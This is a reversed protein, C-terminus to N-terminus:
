SLERKIRGEQKKQKELLEIKSILKWPIGAMIM